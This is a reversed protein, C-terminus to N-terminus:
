GEAAVGLVASGAGRSERGGDDAGSALRGPALEARGVPEAGLDAFLECAIGAIEAVAAAGLAAGALETSRPEL